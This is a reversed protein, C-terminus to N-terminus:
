AGDVHGVFRGVVTRFSDLLIFAKTETGSEVGPGLIQQPIEEPEM